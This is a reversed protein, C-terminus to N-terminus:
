KKENFGKMGTLLDAEKRRRTPYRDGFNRLESEVKAWENKKVHNWLNPARRELNPGYQYSVSLIVTQAEQELEDFSKSDKADRTRNYVQRIRELHRVQIARDLDGAEVASLVLPKKKIFDVAKSGKLGLYPTLKTRTVDKISLSKLDEASLQGLDVGTAATVGSGSASSDPVYGKLVRAGELSEIFRFDPRAM